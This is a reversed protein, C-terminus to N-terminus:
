HQHQLLNGSEDPTATFYVETVITPSQCPPKVKQPTSVATALDYKLDAPRGAAVWNNFRKLFRIDFRNDSYKTRDTPFIGTSQFGAMINEAKLGTHWVECLKNVFMSKDLRAKPGYENLMANLM